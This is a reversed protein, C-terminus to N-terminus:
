LRGKLDMLKGAPLVAAHRHRQGFQFILSAVSADLALHDAWLPIVAQRAARVASVLLVGVGLTVFM